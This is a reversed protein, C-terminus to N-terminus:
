MFGLLALGLGTFAPVAGEEGLKGPKQLLGEGHAALRQLVVQAGGKGEGGFGGGFFSGFLDGLDIDGM